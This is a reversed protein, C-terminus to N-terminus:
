KASAKINLKFHVYFYINWPNETKKHVNYYLIHTLLCLVCCVFEKIIYVFQKKYKSLKHVNYYLIHTLLCLKCCVFEKIIYVFQKKFKFLKHVNYYLIHTLLCLVCFVFEKYHVCVAKQVQLTQTVFFFVIRCAQLCKTINATFRHLFTQTKRLVFTPLCKSIENFNHANNARSLQAFTACCWM